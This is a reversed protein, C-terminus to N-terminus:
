SRHRNRGAPPIDLCGHPEWAPMSSLFFRPLVLYSTSILWLVLRSPKTLLLNFHIMHGFWCYPLPPSTTWSMNSGTEKSPRKPAAAWPCETRFRGPLDRWCFCGEEETYGPRYSPVPAGGCRFVWRLTGWLEQTRRHSMSAIGAEGVPDKHSPWPAIRPWIRHHCPEAM